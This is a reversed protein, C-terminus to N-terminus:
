LTGLGLMPSDPLIMFFSFNTLQAGLSEIRTIVIFFVYQHRHLPCCNCLLHLKWRLHSKGPFHSYETGPQRLPRRIFLCFLIKSCLKTSFNLFIKFFSEFFGNFSTTQVQSRRTWRVLPGRPVCVEYKSDKNRVCNQECDKKCMFTHPAM